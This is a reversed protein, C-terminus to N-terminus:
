GKGAGAQGAGGDDARPPPAPRLLHRDRLWRRRQPARRAKMWAVVSSRAGARDRAACGQWSRSRDRATCCQRSLETSPPMGAPAASGFSSVPAFMDDLTSHRTPPGAHAISAALGAARRLFAGRRSASVRRRRRLSARHLSRRRSGRRRSTAVRRPYRRSGGGLAFKIPARSPHTTGTVPALGYNWEEPMNAKTINNVRHAVQTLLAKSTRNPDFRGSMGSKTPACKVRCCGREAITCLLDEATLGNAVAAGLFLPGLTSRAAGCAAMSTQAKVYFLRSLDIDPWLGAYAEMFAVYCSLLIRANAPLHHPQLGFNDLFASSPPPRCAWSVDLHAGFVVREGPQPEPEKEEGPARTVVSSPIRRLACGASTAERMRARGVLPPPWRSSSLPSWSLRLFPEVAAAAVAAPSSAGNVRPGPADSSSGASRRSREGPEGPSTRPRGPEFAFFLAFPCSRPSSSTLCTAAEYAGRPM